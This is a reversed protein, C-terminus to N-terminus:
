YLGVTSSVYYNYNKSKCYTEIQKILDADKTYELFFVEAGKRKMMAAIEQYYAKDESDQKGFVDNDYDLILSFVEEQHYGWVYSCIEENEELFEAGGNMMVKLGLAHVGRIINKLGTAISGLKSKLSSNEKVISYVDVNDMYVGFGGKDKIDKALTNIVFSQWTSNSVDIWREDEWNEYEAFTLDVYDKYYSRYKEISGVNLYGLCHNNNKELKQITTKEYGEFDFSLYNYNEFGKTNNEDRGLFAGYTLAPKNPTEDITNKNDDSYAKESCVVLSLFIALLPFLLKKM